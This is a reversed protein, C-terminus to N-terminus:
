ITNEKIDSSEEFTNRDRLLDRHILYIAAAKLPDLHIEEEEMRFFTQISFCANIYLSTSSKRIAMVRGLRTRIWFALVTGKPSCSFRAELMWGVRFFLSLFM